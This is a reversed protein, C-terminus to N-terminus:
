KVTYGEKQILKKIDEIKIKDEDFAVTVKGKEQSAEANAVGAEELIDKILAECSKCHMGKVGFAIVKM